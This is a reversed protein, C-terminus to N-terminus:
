RVIPKLTMIGFRYDPIGNLDKIIRIKKKLIIITSSIMILFGIDLRESMAFTSDYQYKALTAEQWSDLEENWLYGNRMMTRGEKSYDYEYRNLKSRFTEDTKVIYILHEKIKFYDNYYYASFNTESWIGNENNWRYHIISDKVFQVQEDSFFNYCSCNNRQIKQSYSGAAFLWIIVIIFVRKM